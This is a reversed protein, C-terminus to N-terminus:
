IAPKKHEQTVVDRNWGLKPSTGMAGPRTSVAIGIGAIGVGTIGVGM